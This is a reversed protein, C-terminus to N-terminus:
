SLYHILAGVEKFDLGHVLPGLAETMSATSNPNVILIKKKQRM